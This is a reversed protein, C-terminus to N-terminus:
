YSKGHMKERRKNWELKWHVHLELPISQHKCLKEISFRAFNLYKYSDIIGLAEKMIMAINYEFEDKITFTSVHMFGNEAVKNKILWFHYDVIRIWADALEDSITDKINDLFSMNSFKELVKCDRKFQLIDAIKNKRDAEIAESLESIILCIQRHKSNPNEWFGKDINQSHIKNAITQIDKVNEFDM